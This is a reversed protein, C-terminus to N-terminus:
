SAVGSELDFVMRWIRDVEGREIVELPKLGGFARNPTKLWDAIAAPKVVRSLADQLRGIEALRQRSAASMAAGAEWGAIARESYGTLRSFAKRDLGLGSRLGAAPAGSEPHRPRRAGSAAADRRLRPKRSGAM